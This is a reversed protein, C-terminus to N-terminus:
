RSRRFRIPAAAPRAVIWSIRGSPRRDFEAATVFPPRSALRVGGFEQESLARFPADNCENLRGLDRNPGDGTRFSLAHACITRDSGLRRVLEM